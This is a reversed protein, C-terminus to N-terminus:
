TKLKSHKKHNSTPLMQARPLTRLRMTNAAQLAQHHITPMQLLLLRIDLIHRRHKLLQAAQSHRHLKLLTPHVTLRATHQHDNTLAVGVLIPLRHVTSQVVCPHAYTRLFTRM